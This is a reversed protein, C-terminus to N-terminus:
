NKWKGRDGKRETIKGEKLEFIHDALELAQKRHSIVFVLRQEKHCYEKLMSFFVRESEPDLASTPEDMFWCKRGSLFMRLIAIKQREGTSLLDPNLPEKKDLHRLGLLGTLETYGENKCGTGKAAYEELPIPLIYPNQPLYYINKWLSERKIQELPIHNYLITRDAVPLLKLLLKLLSTKGTGSAGTLINLTGEKLSFDTNKFICKDKFSFTLSCIDVERIPERLDKGVGHYQPYELLRQFITIMGNIQHSQQFLRPLSFVASALVPLIVIIGFLEYVDMKGNMCLLGGLAATLVISLSAGFLDMLTIIFKKKNMSIMTEIAKENAKNYHRFLYDQNLYPSVERNLIYEWQIGAIQNNAEMFQKQLAMINKREKRALSLLLLVIACILLIIPNVSFIYIVSCFLLSLSMGASQLFSLYSSLAAETQSHIMNVTEKHNNEYFYQGNIYKSILDDQFRSIWKKKCVYAFLTQFIKLLIMIGSVTLFASIWFSVAGKNLFAQMLNQSIYALVPGSLLATFFIIGILAYFCVGKGKIKEM